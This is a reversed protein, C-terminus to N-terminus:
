ASPSGAWGGHVGQRQMEVGAAVDTLAQLVQGALPPSGTEHEGHDAVQRDGHELAGAPCSGRPQAALQFDDGERAGQIRIPHMQM